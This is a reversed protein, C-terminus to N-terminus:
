AAESKTSKKSLQEVYRRLQDFGYEKKGMRKSAQDLIQLFSSISHSLQESFSDIDSITINQDRYEIQLKKDKKLFILEDPEDIIEINSVDRNKISNLGEVFAELFSDLFVGQESLVGRDGVFTINGLPDAPDLPEESDLEWKIYQKM